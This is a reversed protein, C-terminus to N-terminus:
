FNEYYQLSFQTEIYQLMQNFFQLMRFHNYQFKIQLPFIVFIAVSDGVVAKPRGAQQQASVFWFM